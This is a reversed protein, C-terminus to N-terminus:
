LHTQKEGEPLNRYSAIFADIDEPSPGVRHGPSDDQVPPNSVFKSFPSKPPLNWASYSLPASANSIKGRLM